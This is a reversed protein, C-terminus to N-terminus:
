VKQRVKEYGRHIADKFQEWKSGPYQQEFTRRADPEVTMWDRNRYRADSAIESAFRDPDNFATTSAAANAGPTRDVEVDTRRVTDNVTETRQRVDKNVVVEEVVRAEKNVVPREVTETAEITRERFAAAKDADTLPRDVRRREVNVHEERLNVQEQVPRETVRSHIRVGGGQVVRKGVQLQEEVVPIAERSQGATSAAATTGTTGTTTTRNAMGTAATGASRTTAAATSTTTAGGQWGSKRWETAHTDLDMVKGRQMIETARRVEADDDADVAVGCSGRRAAEAYLQRDEEDAMGFMEKLSEWFGPDDNRAGTTSAGSGTNCFLKVDTRGFGSSILEDRVREAESKTQYFGVIQSM